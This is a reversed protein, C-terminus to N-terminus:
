VGYRKSINSLFSFKINRIESKSIVKNERDALPLAMDKIYSQRINILDGDVEKKITDGNILREIEDDGLSITIRKNNSM